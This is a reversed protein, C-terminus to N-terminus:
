INCCFCHLLGVRGGALALDATGPRTEALAPIKRKGRLSNKWQSRPRNIDVLWNKNGQWSIYVAVTKGIDTNETKWMKFSIKVSRRYQPAMGQGFGSDCHLTLKITLIWSDNHLDSFRSLLFVLKEKPMARLQGWIHSNISFQITKFFISSPAAAIPIM